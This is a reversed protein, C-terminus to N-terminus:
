FIFQVYLYLTVLFFVICKTKAVNLFIPFFLLFSAICLVTCSVEIDHELLLLQLYKTLCGDTVPGIGGILNSVWHEKETGMHETLFKIIIM